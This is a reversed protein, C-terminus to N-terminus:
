WFCCQTYMDKKKYCWWFFSEALLITLQFILCQLFCQCVLQVVYDQMEDRM